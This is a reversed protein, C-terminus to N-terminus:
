GIQNLLRSDNDNDPIIEPLEGMIEKVMLISSGSASSSPCAVTTANDSNKVRETYQTASTTNLINWAAMVASSSGTDSSAINGVATNVAGSAGEFLQCIASSNAIVATRSTGTFLAYIPNAASTPTITVTAANAPAAGTGFANSTSTNDASSTALQVQIEDCPKKIGPGFTQIFNPGSTYTGATALGTANYEVYGLIRFAKSTVTTGNPSYFVGASTASGSIATTSAILGENIPNCATSTSANYLALVNTGSNNFSVVWFRFATNNSSGLTAGTANTSISLAATQAVLTTSGTAATSSRYNINCPSTSSPDAGTNDKVAVTLLNSNVSAALTCNDLAWGSYAGDTQLNSGSTKIGATPTLEGLVGANNYELNGTSGSTITTTGVQITSAAGPCAVTIAQNSANLGLGSTCSGSSLGPLTVIQPLTISTSGTPVNLVVTGAKNLIAVDNVSGDGQVVAGNGVTNYFLAQGQATLTPPALTGGLITNGISQAPVTTGAAVVQGNFAANASFTQNGSWTLAGGITGVFTPSTNYVVSGSGTTPATIISCAIQGVTGASVTLCDGNTGGTIATSNITIGALAGPFPYTTGNIVFQLAQATATGYNQLSITANGTTSAGLCLANYGSASQRGSNVCFGTGGNNTVGLSTIPSDASTGGDALVGNSNWVSTHGRTVPTVYQVNQAFAPGAIFLLAFVLLKKLM